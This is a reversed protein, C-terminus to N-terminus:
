NINDIVKKIKPYPDEWSAPKIIKGNSERRHISGDEWIKSMNANHVVDFIEKPKVGMEVMTGLAFYILDIMADAQDYINESEIFEQIEELMFESRIKAREKNIFAPTESLEHGFVEHFKKVQDYEENIM